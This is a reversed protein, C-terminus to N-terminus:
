RLNMFETLMRKSMPKQKSDSKELNLRLIIIQAINSICARLDADYFSAINAKSGAEQKLKFLFGYKYLEKDLYKKVVHSMKDYVADIEFMHDIETIITGIKALPNHQFILKIIKYANLMETKEPSVLVLLEKIQSNILPMANELDKPMVSLLILDVNEELADLEMSLKTKKDVQSLRATIAPNLGILKVGLPGEQIVTKPTMSLKEHPKTDLFFNLCSLNEDIDVVAIRMGLRALALSLNVILFADRYDCYNGILCISKTALEPMTLDKKEENAAPEEIPSNEEDTSLFLYSIDELGKGLKKLKNM